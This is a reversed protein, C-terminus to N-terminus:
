LCWQESQQIVLKGVELARAVYM